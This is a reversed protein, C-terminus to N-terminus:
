DLGRPPTRGEIRVVGDIDFDRIEYRPSLLRRAHAVDNVDTRETCLGNARVHAWLETLTTFKLETANELDHLAYRM